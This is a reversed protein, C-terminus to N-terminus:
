SALTTAFAARSGDGAYIRRWLRSFNQLWARAGNLGETDVLNTASFPPSITCFGANRASAADGLTAREFAVVHAGGRALAYAATLGACGAGIIAVDCVHPPDVDLVARPARWYPSGLSPGKYHLPLPSM